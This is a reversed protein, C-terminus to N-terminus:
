VRPWLYNTARVPVPAIEDWLARMRGYVDFNPSSTGARKLLVHGPMVAAQLKMREEVSLERVRSPAEPQITAVARDIWSDDASIDFYSCVRKLTAKPDAHMDEFCFERYQDPGLYEVQSMLKCIALTWFQGFSEPSPKNQLRLLFPDRDRPFDNKIMSLMEQEDPPSFYFSVHTAFYAHNRMSMAVEAGDRHLHLYRGNPFARRLAPFYEASGGSREIWFEKKFVATLWDYLASFHEATTQRKQSRAWGIMETMLGAVDSTWHPITALMPKPIRLAQSNKDLVIEKDGGARAINLNSNIHDRGLMAAFETGSVQGDCLMDFDMGGFLEHIVFADPHHELLKSLLTSGCRGTGVIFRQMAQM